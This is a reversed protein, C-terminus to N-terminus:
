LANPVLEDYVSITHSEMEIFRLLSLMKRLLLCRSILIAFPASSTITMRSRPEILSRRQECRLQATFPCFGFDALLGASAGEFNAYVVILICRYHHRSALAAHRM